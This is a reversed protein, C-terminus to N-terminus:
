LGLDELSINAAAEKKKGNSRPASLFRERDARLEEVIKRIDDETLTEPDKNFISELSNPNVETLPSKM